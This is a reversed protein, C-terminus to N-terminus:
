LELSGLLVASTVIRTTRANTCTSLTIVFSTGDVEANTKIASRSQIKKVIDEWEANTTFDFGDIAYADGDEPGCEYSSFVQYLLKREPTIIWIIPHEDAYKQDTYSKTTAFMSGDRMNHGYLISHHSLLGKVNNSDEFITGAYLYSKNWGRHLYYDNDKGQVMPYSVPTGPIYIWGIFDSNEALLGKADVNIPLFDTTKADKLGVSKLTDELVQMVSKKKKKVAKYVTKKEEVKEKDEDILNDEFESPLKLEKETDKIKENKKDDSKEGKSDEETKKGETQLPTKTVTGDVWEKITGEEVDPENDIEEEDDNEDDELDSIDIKSTFRSSLDEYGERAEKYEMFKPVYEYAGYAALALSILIFLIGIARRM